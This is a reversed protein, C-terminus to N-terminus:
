SILLVKVTQAFWQGGRKPKHGSEALKIAIKNLSLGQTRWYKACGVATSRDHYVASRLLEQVSWSHYEAAKSPRLGAENLKNAISVASHGDAKLVYALDYARQKDYVKDSTQARQVHGGTKVLLDYVSTKTWQPSQSPKVDHENLRTAIEAFGVGSRYWATMRALWAQNEPHEVLRRLKGDRVARYGFPVKGIHGGQERIYAISSKVRESIQNREIQSHAILLLTTNRGGFHFTNIGEFVCILNCREKEVYDAMFNHFDRQSRSFRDLKTVIVADILGQDIAQFMRAFSPRDSSKASQQDVYVDTLQYGMLACYREIADRQAALSVGHGAQAETSVRAYGACRLVSRQPRSTRKANARGPSSVHSRHSLPRMALSEGDM